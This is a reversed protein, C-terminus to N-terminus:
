WLLDLGRRRLGLWIEFELELHVDVGEEECEEKGHCQCGGVGACRLVAFWVSRRRSRRGPTRRLRPTRQHSTRRLHRHRTRRRHHRRRPGRRRRTM